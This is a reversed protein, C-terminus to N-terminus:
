DDNFWGETEEDVSPKKNKKKKASAPPEVYLEELDHAIALSKDAKCKESVREPWISYALHAWDYEGAELKQWTEKLRKQWPKHQFLKWLPAATIEVGDNLNPKWFKAVRLLEERFDKLEREFDTLRELEKEEAASRGKKLRLRAAEESVQKLKPDVFDNVCTYLTQDNLRHYYLWLTYSGSPTSFPWYIPAARRSKSYRKLHEAFFLTPKQFYERLSHVGLIQCAESEIAEGDERWIVHLAERVRAQLNESHGEDDVLVGGWSICLPYDTPVDQPTAPLGQANQLMGPPCAPLPAFPDPLESAPKEGTAFRIDWRGLINGIVYSLLNHYEDNESIEGLPDSEQDDDESEIVSQNRAAIAELMDRELETLDKASLGFAKAILHDLEEDLLHNYDFSLDHVQRGLAMTIMKPLLFEQFPEYNQYADRRSKIQQKVFAELQDSLKQDLDLWPLSKVSDVLYNPFSFKEGFFRLYSGAMNSGAIGLISYEHGRKPFAMYRSASPICGSPIAYPIFRVARRTWSIGPRLYLETSRLTSGPFASLYDGKKYWDVVVLLPSYWPQSTGTMVLPFWRKLLLGNPIEWLVRVFRDNNGTSLGCRVIAADPDLTGVKALSTIIEDSVWYAFPTLRLIKFEDVNKLFLNKSM